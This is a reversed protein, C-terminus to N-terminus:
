GLDHSQVYAPDLHPWGDELRRALSRRGEDDALMKELAGVDGGGGAYRRHYRDSLQAWRADGTKSFLFDAARSTTLLEILQAPCAPLDTDSALAPAEALYPVRLITATTPIPHFEIFAQFVNPTGDVRTRSFVFVHPGGRATRKPDVADLWERPREVLRFGLTGEQIKAADPPFPYEAQFLSYGLAAATPGPWLVPVLQADGLTLTGPGAVAAVRFFQDVGSITIARGVM